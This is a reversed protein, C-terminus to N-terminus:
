IKCLEEIIYNQARDLNKGAKQILTNKEKEIDTHAAAKIDLAKKDAELASQKEYSAAESQADALLKAGNEHASKEIDRARRAAEKRIASAQEECKKIENIIDLAM